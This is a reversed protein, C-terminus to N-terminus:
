FLDSAGYNQFYSGIYKNAGVCDFVWLDTRSNQSVIPPIGSPWRIADASFSYQVGNSNGYIKYTKGVVGNILTITSSSANTHTFYSLTGANALNLNSSSSINGYSTVQYNLGGGGFVRWKHSTVDYQLALIADANVIIDNGTGTLVRNNEDSNSSNNLLTFASGSANHVFLLKGNDGSDAVFGSISTVTTLRLFSQDAVNLNNIVPDSILPTITTTVKLENIRAEGTSIIDPIYTTSKGLFKWRYNVSDYFLICAENPYVKINANYPLVIRSNATASTSEHLLTLVGDGEYFLFMLKEREDDPNTLGGLSPSSGSFYMTSIGSTALSTILGNAATDGRVEWSLEGSLAVDTYFRRAM